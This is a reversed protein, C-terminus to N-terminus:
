QLFFYQLLFYQLLFYELLVYQVFLIAPSLAGQHQHQHQSGSCYCWSNCVGSRVMTGRVTIKFYGNEDDDDRHPFGWHKFWVGPNSSCCHLAGTAFEIQIENTQYSHDNQYGHDNRIERHHYNQHQQSWTFRLGSTSWYDYMRFAFFNAFDAKWDRFFHTFRFM